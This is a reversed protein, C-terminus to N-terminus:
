QAVAQRFAARYRHQGPEMPHGAHVCLICSSTGDPHTGHHDAQILLGPCPPLAVSRGAACDRVYHQVGGHVVRVIPWDFQKSSTWIARYRCEVSARNPHNIQQGPLPSGVTVLIELTSTEDDQERLVLDQVNVPTTPLADVFAQMEAAAPELDETDLSSILALCARMASAPVVHHVASNGLPWPRRFRTFLIDSYRGRLVSTVKGQVSDLWSANFQASFTPGPLLLLLLLLALPQTLPARSLAPAQAFARGPSASLGM